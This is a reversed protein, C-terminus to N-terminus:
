LEGLLRGGGESDGGAQGISTGHLVPHRGVAAVGVVGHHGKGVGLSAVGRSLSM